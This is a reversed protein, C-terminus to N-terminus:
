ATATHLVLTPKRSIDTGGYVISTGHENTQLNIGQQSSWASGLANLFPSRKTISSSNALCNTSAIFAAVLLIFPKM